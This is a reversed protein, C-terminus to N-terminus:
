AARKDVPYVPHARVLDLAAAADILTKSGLKFAPLRGSRMHRYVSTRHVGFLAAAEDPSLFQKSM